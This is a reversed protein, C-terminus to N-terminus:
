VFMFILLRMGLGVPGETYIGEDDPGRHIMTRCMQRITAPDVQADKSFRFVGAIGCM